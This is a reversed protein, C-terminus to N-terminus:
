KHTRRWISGKWNQCFNGGGGPPLLPWFIYGQNFDYLFMVTSWGLSRRVLWMQFVHAYNRLQLESFSQFIRLFNSGFQCLFKHLFRHLNFKWGSHLYSTSIFLNLEFFNTNMKLGLPFPLHTNTPFSIFATCYVNFIQSFNEIYQPTLLTHTDKIM